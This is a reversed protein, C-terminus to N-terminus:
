TKERKLQNFHAKFLQRLGGIDPSTNNKSEFSALLGSFNLILPLLWPELARDKLWYQREEHADGHVVDTRATYAQRVAKEVTERDEDSLGYPISKCRNSLQESKGNGKLCALAELASVVNVLMIRVSTQAYASSILFSAYDIQRLAASKSLSGNTMGQIISGILNRDPTLSKVVEEDDGGRLPIYESRPGALTQHPDGAKTVVLSPTRLHTISSALTFVKAQGDWKFSMRLLNLWFEVASQGAARGSQADFGHISVAAYHKARKLVSDWAEAFLDNWSDSNDRNHSVGEIIEALGDSSGFTLPGFAESFKSPNQSFVIPFYYTAEIQEAEIQPVVNRLLLHFDIPKPSSRIEGLANQLHKVAANVTVRDSLGIEHLIDRATEYLLNQTSQFMLTQKAPDSNGFASGIAIGYPNIVADKEKGVPTSKQQTMKAALDPGFNEIELLIQELKLAIDNM